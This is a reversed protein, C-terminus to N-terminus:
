VGLSKFIKALNDAQQQSKYVNQMAPSMANLKQQEKVANMFSKSFTDLEPQEKKDEDESDTVPVDSGVKAATNPSTSLSAPSSDKKEGGLFDTLFSTIM